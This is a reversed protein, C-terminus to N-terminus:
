VYSKNRESIVPPGYRARKKRSIPYRPEKGESGRNTRYVGRDADTTDWMERFALSIHAVRRQGPLLLWFDRESLASHRIPFWQGIAIKLYSPHPRAPRLLSGRRHLERSDSRLFVKIVGCGRKWVAYKLPLAIRSAISQALESAGACDLLGGFATVTSQFLVVTTDFDVGVSCTTTLGM